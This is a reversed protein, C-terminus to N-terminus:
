LREGRLLKPIQGSYGAAEEVFFKKLAPLRNVLGLGIDRVTRVPLLDNSFLRNLGDMVLASFVSDFRRWRQYRELATFNGPDLGLRFDDIVVETLAAADRFGINLGLGAIPHVGHAADGVLALRPAIFERALHMELPIGFRPGAIELAGLQHGFRRELEALFRDDDLEIIEQGRRLEETWVLSCRDGTLPLIAFPGAPLFHQVACGRHSKEHRITTVIGFQKYSWSTSKIGALRRLTSKRGDAAILLRGSIKEGSDTIVTNAHEGTEMGVVRNRALFDINPDVSVRASLANHLHHNEIMYAAPSDESLMSEFQLFVPRLVVDLSSDTIDINTIPQIKHELERWLGLADLFSKSSASLATARGNFSQDVLDEYNRPDLVCIKMRRDCNGALAAATALGTFSGGVIVADYVDVEFRSM